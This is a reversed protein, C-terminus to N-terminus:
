LVFIHNVVMLFATLWCKWYIEPINLVFSLIVCVLNMYIHTHTHLCICLYVECLVRSYPFLKKIEM